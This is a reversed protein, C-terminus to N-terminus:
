IPSRIPFTGITTGVTCTVAPLNVFTGRILLAGAGAMSGTGSGTQDAIVGFIASQHEAV